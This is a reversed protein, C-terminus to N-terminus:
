KRFALLDLDIKRPAWRPASERGLQVECTKLFRLAELSPGEWEIELVANLFPKRWDAPAGEPVMAPTEVIPSVNAIRAKDAIMRAAAEM